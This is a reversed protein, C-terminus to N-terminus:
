KKMINFATWIWVSGYVVNQERYSAIMFVVEAVWYMIIAYTTENTGEKENLGANSLCFCFGLITASTLWGAYLSFAPYCVLAEFTNLKTRSFPIMMELALLLM